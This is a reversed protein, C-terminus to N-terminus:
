DIAKQTSDIMFNMKVTKDSVQKDTMTAVVYGEEEDKFWAKTGKTYVELKEDM